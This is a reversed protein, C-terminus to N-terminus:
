RTNGSGSSGGLIVVLAEGLLESGLPMLRSAVLAYRAWIIQSIYRAECNQGRYSESYEEGLGILYGLM